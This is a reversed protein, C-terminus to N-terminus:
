PTKSTFRESQYADDHQRVGTLGRSNLSSQVDPPAMDPHRPLRHDIVCNVNTYEELGRQGWYTLLTHLEPGDM